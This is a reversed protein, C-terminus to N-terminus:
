CSWLACMGDTWNTEGVFMNWGGDRRNGHTIRRSAVRSWRWGPAWKKGGHPIWVTPKFLCCLAGTDSPTPGRASTCCVRAVRPCTNWAPGCRATDPRAPGSLVCVCVRRGRSDRIVCRCVAREGKGNRGERTFDIWSRRATASSSTQGKGSNARRRQLEARRRRHNCTKTTEGPSVSAGGSSRPRTIVQPRSVSARTLLTSTFASEADPPTLHRQYSVSPCQCHCSARVPTVRTVVRYRM